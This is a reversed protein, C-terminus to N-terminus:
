QQNMIPILWEIDKYDGTKPIVMKTWGLPKFLGINEPSILTKQILTKESEPLWPAVAFPITQIKESRALIKTEAQVKKSAMYYATDMLSVADISDEKIMALSATHSPVQTLSIDTIGAKVLHGKMIMAALAFPDIVSLNKGRLDELTKLPSDKKVVIVSYMPQTDDRAVARYGAKKEILPYFHSPPLVIDYRKEDISRLLFTKFDPATEILVPRKLALSLQQALPGFLRILHGTSFAPLIGLIYAKKEPQEPQPSAHLPSGFLAFIILLYTFYQLIGVIKKSSYLLM